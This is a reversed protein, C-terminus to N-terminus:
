SLYSFDLYHTRFEESSGYRYMKKKLIASLLRKVVSTERYKITGVIKENMLQQLAEFYIRGDVDHLIFLEKKKVM